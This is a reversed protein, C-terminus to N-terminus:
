GRKDAGMLKLINHITNLKIERALKKDKEEGPVWNANRLLLSSWSVGIPRYLVIDKIPMVM